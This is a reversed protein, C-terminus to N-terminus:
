NFRQTNENFATMAATRLLMANHNCGAKANASCMRTAANAMVAEAEAAGAFDQPMRYPVPTAPVQVEAMTRVEAAEPSPDATRPSQAAYVSRRKQHRLAQTHQQRVPSATQVASSDTSAADHEERQPVSQPKPVAKATLQPTAQQPQAQWSRTALFTVGGLLVVVVAAASMWRRSVVFRTGHAEAEIAKHLRLGFGKPLAEADTPLMQLLAHREAADLGCAEAEETRLWAALQREEAQSTEAEYYREIRRRAEQHTM